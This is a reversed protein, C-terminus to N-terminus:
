TFKVIEMDMHIKYDQISGRFSFLHYSIIYFLGMNIYKSVTTKM